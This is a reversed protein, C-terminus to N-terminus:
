DTWVWGGTNNEGSPRVTIDGVKLGHVELLEKYFAGVTGADDHEIYFGDNATRTSWKANDNKNRVM